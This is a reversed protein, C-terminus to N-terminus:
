RILRRLTYGRAELLAPLGRPGLFHGLGVAVFADGRQLEEILPGLWAENRDYLIVDYLDPLREVEALIEAEVADLDGAIFREARQASQARSEEPDLLALELYAVIASVPIASMFTVQQEFTELSRVPVGHAVARDRAASDLLSPQERRGAPETSSGSAPGVRGEEAVAAEGAMVMAFVAWPEFRDLAEPPIPLRDVLKAWLPAPLISSLQAGEPLLMHQALQQPDADSVDAEMVFVRARDLRADHPPPLAEALGLGFHYTGLMHSVAGNPATVEWLNLPIPPAPAAVAEAVPEIPNLTQTAGGCAALVLVLWGARSAVDSSLRVWPGDPM